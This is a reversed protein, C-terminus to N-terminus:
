MNEFDKVLAEFERMRRGEPSIIANIRTEFKELENVKDNIKILKMRKKCDDIWDSVLYAGIKNSATEIDLIKMAENRIKDQHIIEAVLAIIEKEGAVQLNINSGGNNPKYSCNTKWPTDAEKRLRKLEERKNKAVALMENIKNDIADTM